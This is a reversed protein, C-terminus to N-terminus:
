DNLRIPMLLMILEEKEQQKDPYVVAATIASHFEMHVPSSDIHSILDHLYNANYGIVLPEGEYDCPLAEKASSVTEVDETTIELGEPGLKLAIQHTSKNSFISVRRVASLFPERDIKLLKDNDKPFVSDYEPFREDILRSYLTTEGSEMMIHNEGINLTITEDDDLYSSLINLFKVPIISSGQYSGGQHDKFLYKVLRHGDTAVALLDEERFNFLVGMLSPKLEDKSTAFATKEIVRGLIKAPMGLTQQEDISPLSPFEETPKGMISYTGFSTSINVKHSSDVEISIEGEPIESTIELLTRHQVAVSGDAEVEAPIFIVQSIELDTARLSLKGDETLMLVSNLIPLTSRSPTVKSLQQLAQQLSSKDSTFKM